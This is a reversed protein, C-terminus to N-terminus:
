KKVSLLVIRDFTDSLVRQTRAGAFLRDLRQVDGPRVVCLVKERAGFFARLQDDKWLVEIPHPSWFPNPRSDMVAIPNGSHFRVGRAYLKSAVVTQGALGNDAAIRTTDTDTFGAVASAPISLILALTVGLFGAANLVIAPTLRRLLLLAGCAVQVVGFAAVALLVPRLEAALPGKALFPAAVLGAGFM